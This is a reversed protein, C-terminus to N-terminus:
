WPGTLADAQELIFTPDGWAIVLQNDFQGFYVSQPPPPPPIPNAILQFDFSVDSSTSGQQHIEVAAINQGAVLNTARITANDITNEGNPSLSTTSHAIATPFAPLNPSRYVERGNLHVVGADDRLLTMSLNTFATPDTVNFIRRFYYTVQGQSGFNGILTAEDNEEGNSFGLQAPGSLWSTDNFTLDRWGAPTASLFVNPYKWTAGMPIATVSPVTPNSATKVYYMQMPAPLAAYQLEFRVLDVDSLDGEPPAAWAI